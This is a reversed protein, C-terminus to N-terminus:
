FPCFHFSVKKLVFLTEPLLNLNCLNVHLSLSQRVFSLPGFQKSQFLLFLWLSMYFLQYSSFM